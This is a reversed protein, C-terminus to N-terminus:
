PLLLDDPIDKAGDPFLVRIHALIGLDVDFDPFLVSFLEAQIGRNRGAIPPFAHAFKLYAIGNKIFGHLGTM